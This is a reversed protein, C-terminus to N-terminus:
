RLRPNIWSQVGDQFEVEGFATMAKAGCPYQHVCQWGHRDFLETLLTDIRQSHTGIFARRVKRNMAEMGSPLVKEEAGQIDMDLFDVRDFDALLRDLSYATVEATKYGAGLPAAHQGYWLAPEDNILLGVTEGDETGAAGHILRHKAPDLDNNRFHEVLWEFHSPEAEIGVFSFPLGPRKQRLASAASVLWRGYGAGVEIMTFKGRAEIVASLLALWEFSEESLAPYPSSSQREPPNDTPNFFRTDTQEGLFGGVFGARIMGSWPTFQSFVPHRAPDYLPKARRVSGILRSAAQWLM